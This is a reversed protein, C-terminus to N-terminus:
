LYKPLVRIVYLWYRIPKVRKKRTYYFITLMVSVTLTSNSTQSIKMSYLNFCEIGIKLKLMIKRILCFRNYFFPSSSILGRKQIIM